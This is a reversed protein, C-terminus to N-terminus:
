EPDKNFQFIRLRGHLRDNRYAEAVRPGSMDHMEEHVDARCQLVVDSLLSWHCTSIQPEEISLLYM